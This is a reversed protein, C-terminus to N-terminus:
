RLSIVSFGKDKAALLLTEDPDVAVPNEVIELLPLDNHSDSYFYAGEMSENKESLWQNLRKVKGEKFTPIGVVKGTFRGNIRELDAGLIIDVGLAKAIPETIFTNTATIIMVTHGKAKHSELLAEAKPLMVANIKEEMFKAHLVELEQEDFGSLAQAVFELYAFINLSGSKYDEYFQDNASGYSDPDVLGQEVIFEGWLNDSDDAILTNDLDFIALTM